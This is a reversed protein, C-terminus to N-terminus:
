SSPKVRGNLSPTGFGTKSTMGAKAPIVTFETADPNKLLGELPSHNM